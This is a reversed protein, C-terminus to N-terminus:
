IQNEFLDSKKVTFYTPTLPKNFSLLQVWLYGKFLIILREKFTLKWCSIVEGQSSDNKFAPLPLYEPQNEAFTVNQEPFKTPKMTIPNPTLM